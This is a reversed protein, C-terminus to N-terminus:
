AIRRNLDLAADRVCEGLRTARDGLEEAKSALRRRIRIGRAPAVLVGLTAGVAFGVLSGGLFFLDAHRALMGAVTRRGPAASATRQPPAVCAAARPSAIRPRPRLARDSGPVILARIGEGTAELTAAGRALADLRRRIELELHNEELFQRYAAATTAFGPPVRVGAEGLHRLLEGLSTSKGGVRELNSSSLLELPVVYARPAPVASEANLEIASLRDTAAIRGVVTPVTGPRAKPHDRFTAV